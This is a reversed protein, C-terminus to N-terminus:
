GQREGTIASTAAMMQSSQNAVGQKAAEAQIEGIDDNGFIRGFNGRLSETMAEDRYNSLEYPKKKLDNIAEKLERESKKDIVEGSIGLMTKQHKGETSGDFSLPRTDIPSMVQPALQPATNGFSELNSGPAMDPISQPTSEFPTQALSETTNTFPNNSAVEPTTPIDPVQSALVDPASFIGNIAAGGIAQGYTNVNPTSNADQLQNEGSFQSSEPFQFIGSNLNEGTRGVQSQDM